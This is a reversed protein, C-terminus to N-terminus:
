ETRSKALQAVRVRLALIRAMLWVLIFVASGPVSPIAIERLIYRSSTHVSKRDYHFMWIKCIAWPMPHPCARVMQTTDGNHPM